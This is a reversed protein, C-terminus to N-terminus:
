DRRAQACTLRLTSPVSAGVAPLPCPYCARPSLSLATCCIAPHHAARGDHTVITRFSLLIDTWFIGECIRDLMGMRISVGELSAVFAIHFPVLLTSYLVAAAVVLHV